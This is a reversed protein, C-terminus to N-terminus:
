KAFCGKSFDQSLGFDVDSKERLRSRGREARVGSKEREECAAPRGRPEGEEM